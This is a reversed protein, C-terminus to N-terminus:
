YPTTFLRSPHRSCKYVTALRAAPDVVVVAPGDDWRIAAASDKTGVPVADCSPAAVFASPRAALARAYAALSQRTVRENDPTASHPAPSPATSPPSVSHLEGKTATGRGAPSRADSPREQTAADSVDSGASDSNRQTDDILSIGAYGVLVTAAAAGALWVWRPRGAASSAGEAVSGTSSTRREALSPVAASREVGARRLAEDLSAAVPDPMTLPTSGATALMAEVEDFSAVASACVGCSALHGSLEDAREKPLLGEHLDALDDLSPHAVDTM